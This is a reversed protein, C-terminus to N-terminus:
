ATRPQLTMLKMLLRPTPTCFMLANACVGMEANLEQMATAVPM